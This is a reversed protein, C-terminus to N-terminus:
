GLPRVDQHLRSLAVARIGKAMPFTASGAHIVDLSSLRLDVLAQRMSPTVAPATTRKFEFGRRIRGRVVLLDLEAGAHTRWFFCEHWGARLRDVVSGLGFGEWSAGVKPHRDLDDHTQIGLLTHLMGSDSIYVKPSKVQRKSLNEHWPPLVRVVFTAALLDLYRRVTMDSVGFARALEAGNWTQGHYHALMSWFRGLTAAPIQVGLQPLDREVFTRIFNQRWEGSTTDSRALYSRPFGGRLWLRNLQTVGTEVLSFGDLHHFSIRGALSESTQQLLAASASGLVLFRAPTRPRDALVRLFPFLDPRRQVEDLIVLGRHAELALMPDALRSVDAPNELDFAAVPRQSAHAVMAALTTKGVQRAGLIAVVPYSRLLRIVDELHRRREIEMGQMILM